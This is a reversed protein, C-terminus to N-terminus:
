RKELALIFPPNNKQNIFEYKLVHIHQQDLENVYHLLDDREIKGEEHGHYIVLVIIGEPAMLDIMQEVAAITSSSTTVIAKKGGPLYGLNFIASKVKGHYEPPIMTTVQDHSSKFLTVRDVIEENILRETTNTIAQEQIDFGFVHGQEGVKKALYVTDHGNGVTADIAIDGNSLALDVLHRAFPLIGQLKM